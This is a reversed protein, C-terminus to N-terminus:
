GRAAVVLIPTTILAISASPHSVTVGYRELFFLIRYDV